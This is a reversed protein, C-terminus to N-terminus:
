TVTFFLNLLIFGIVLVKKINNTTILSIQVTPFAILPVLIPLSSTFWYIKTKLISYIIIELWYIIAAVLIPLTNNNKGVFILYGITGFVIFTILGDFSKPYYLTTYGGFLFNTVFSILEPSISPLWSIRSAANNSDLYFFYFFVFLLFPIAISTALKTWYIKQKRLISIYAIFVCIPIFLMVGIMHTCVAVILSFTLRVYGINKEPKILLRSAFFFTLSTNISQTM